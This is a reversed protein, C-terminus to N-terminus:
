TRLCTLFCPAVCERNNRGHERDRSSDTTTRHSCCSYILLVGAFDRFTFGSLLALEVDGRCAVPVVGGTRVELGRRGQRRQRASGPRARTTRRVGSRSCWHMPSKKYFFASVSNSVSDRRERWAGLCSSPRSPPQIGGIPRWVGARANRHMTSPPLANTPSCPHNHGRTPLTTSPRYHGRAPPSPALAATAERQCPPAPAAHLRPTPHPCGTAEQRHSLLLTDRRGRRRYPLVLRPPAPPAVERRQAPPSSRPTIHRASTSSAFTWFNQLTAHASRGM